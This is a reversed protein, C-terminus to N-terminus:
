TSMLHPGSWVGFGYTIWIAVRVIVIILAALVYSRINSLFRLWSLHVPDSYNTLMQCAEWTLM